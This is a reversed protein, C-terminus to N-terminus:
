SAAHHDFSALGSTSLLEHARKIEQADGHVILLFKDSKLATEYRLVSDKPIGIAMLAGVLASAGGVLVAGQLGGFITAALPGLIIVHGVVPVFLLASGFLMGMLGGWFAGLKGFFKARDGANLFGVVHEETHYDRGIISLKKMDFGARQLAKVASEAQIHNDYVAVAIDTKNMIQNMTRDNENM